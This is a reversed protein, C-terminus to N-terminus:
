CLFCIFLCDSGLCWLCGGYVIFLDLGFWFLYCLVWWLLNLMLCRLWVVLWVLWPLWVVVLRVCFVILEFGFWCCFLAWSLVVIMFLGFRLRVCRFCGFTDLVSLVLYVVSNFVCCGTLCLNWDDFCLAIGLLGLM